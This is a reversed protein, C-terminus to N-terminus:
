RNWRLSLVMASLMLLAAAIVFGVSIEVDRQQLSVQRPLERFVKSLQAADEAKYFEGGTLNAVGRLTPEDISLIRRRTQAGDRGAGFDNGRGNAFGDGFGDAGLQQPTCVMDTPENTGFGITYVRVRRAAAQKAAELPEIGRTNAGDTLLVVIDPVYGNPPVPAKEPPPPASDVGFPDNPDFNGNDFRSGFEATSAIDSAIPPVDPNIAAIADISKLTAAGIATGRVTTLGDIASTLQERESTPPVVLQAFGAFVVLGIRTGKPQDKVFARAADQAVSMRNPEVDTSCMSRSVDLALMITTRGLPVRLNAQPRATAFGLGTLGLLFLAVPIHRKWAARAPMAAKILAINSFVVASKRKRRMQLVYAGLLLPVALLSLLALPWAFNM